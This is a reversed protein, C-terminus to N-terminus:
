RLVGRAAAAGESQWDGGGRGSVRRGGGVVEVGVVEAPVVLEEGAPGVEGLERDRDDVAVRAAGLEGVREVAEALLLV